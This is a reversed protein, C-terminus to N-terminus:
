QKEHKPIIFSQSKADYLAPNPHYGPGITLAVGPLDAQNISSRFEKSYVALPQDSDPQMLKVIVTYPRDKVVGKVGPTRFM